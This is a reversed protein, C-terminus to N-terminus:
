LVTCLCCSVYLVGKYYYLVSGAPYMCYVKYYYLVYGSPYMCFVKYYHVTCYMILLICVSCSKTTSYLVSGTPYMCFVKVTTCYLKYGAPYM